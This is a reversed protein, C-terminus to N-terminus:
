SLEKTGKGRGRHSSDDAKLITAEQVSGEEMADTAKTPDEEKREKRAMISTAEENLKHSKKEHNWMAATTLSVENYEKQSLTVLRLAM